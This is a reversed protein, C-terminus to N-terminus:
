NKILKGNVLRGLMEPNKRGQFVQETNYINDDKDKYYFIGGLELATVSIMKEEFNQTKSFEGHPCGKIHTGCYKCGERKKRSCQEGDARKALCRHEDKIKNKARNRKKFKNLNITLKDIENLISM